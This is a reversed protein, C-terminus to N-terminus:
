LLLPNPLALLEVLDAIRAIVHERQNLSGLDQALAEFTLGARASLCRLGNIFRDMSEFQGFLEFVPPRRLFGPLATLGALLAQDISQRHHLFKAVANDGLLASLQRYAEAPM